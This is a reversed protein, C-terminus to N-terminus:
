AKGKIRPHAGSRTFEVLEDINESLQTIAKELRALRCNVCNCDDEADLPISDKACM